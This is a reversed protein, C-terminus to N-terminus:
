GMWVKMRVHGLIASTSFWQLPEANSQSCSTKTNTRTKSAQGFPPPRSPYTGTARTEVAANRPPQRVLKTLRAAIMITAITITLVRPM